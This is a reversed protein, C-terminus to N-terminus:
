AHRTIERGLRRLKGLLTDARALGVNLALELFEEERDAAAAARTSDALPRESAAKRAKTAESRAVYVYATTIVMGQQAAAAIIEKASQNARSLIFDKKSTSRPQTENAQMTSRGKRQVHAVAMAALM